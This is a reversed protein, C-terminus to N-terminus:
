ECTFVCFDLGKQSADFAYAAVLRKNAVISDPAERIGM